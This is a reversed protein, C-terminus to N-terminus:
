EEFAGHEITDGRALEIRAATGANLELVALAPEGSSIVRESLPVAHQHFGVVKGQGSIFIMDLPVYTNKMWMRIPESARFVFLMGHDMRLSTRFMLGREQERGTRAVEASFQHRGNATVITVMERPLSRERHFGAVISGTGVCLLTALFLARRRASSASRVDAKRTNESRYLTSRRCWRLM